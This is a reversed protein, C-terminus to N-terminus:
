VLRIFRMTPVLRREMAAAVAWAAQVVAASMPASATMVTLWSPVVAWITLRKRGAVVTM